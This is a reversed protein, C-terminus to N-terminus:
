KPTSIRLQPYMSKCAYSLSCRLYAPGLVCAVFQVLTQEPLQLQNVCSSRRARSAWCNKGVALMSCLEAGFMQSTLQLMMSIVMIMMFGGGGGGM